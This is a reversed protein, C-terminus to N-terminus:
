KSGRYLSRQLTKPNLINDPDNQSTQGLIAGLTWNKPNSLITYYEIETLNDKVYKHITYLELLGRELWQATHMAYRYQGYFEKAIEDINNM